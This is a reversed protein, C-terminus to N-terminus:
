ATLIAPTSKNEIVRSSTWRVGRDVLVLIVQQTGKHRYFMLDGEVEINFGIVMRSTAKVDPSPRAWLRCVRCTEVISPVLELVEKPIGVANLLRQMKDTSPHFWRLHLKRLIRRRGAEDSMRLGRMSAQVDFSTWDSPVPTQTESEGWARRVRPVLDAGRGAQPGSDPNSATAEEQQDVPMPDRAGRPREDPPVPTPPVAAEAKLEDEIGLDSGRLSSTPEAKAPVRGYPRKTKHRPATLAHRCDPGYTHRGDSRPKHAVCGPCSFDDPTVDPHLCEGRVRTHVQAAEMSMGQVAAM